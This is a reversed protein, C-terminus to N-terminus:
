FRVNIRQAAGANRCWFGMLLVRVLVRRSVVWFWAVASAVRVAMRVIM